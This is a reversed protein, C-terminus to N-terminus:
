KIGIICGADDIYATVVATSATNTVSNNVTNDCFASKYYTVVKQYANASDITETVLLDVTNADSKVVTGYVTEAGGYVYRSGNFRKIGYSGVTQLSVSVDGTLLKETKGSKLSKITINTGDNDVVVFPEDGADANNVVAIVGTTDFYVTADTQAAVAKGDDRFFISKQMKNGDITLSSADIESITGSFTKPTTVRVENAYDCYSVIDGINVSVNSKISSADYTTIEDLYYDYFKIVGSSNAVVKGIRYEYAFFYDIAMDGDMDVVTIQMGPRNTIMEMTATDENSATNFIEDFNYAYNEPWKNYNLYKKTGNTLYLRNTSNGGVTYYSGYSMEYFSGKKGIFFMNKTEDTDLNFTQAVTVSPEMYYLPEDPSYSGSRDLDAYTLIVRYGIFNDYNGAMKVDAGNSLLVDNEIEHGMPNNKTGLIVASGITNLNYKLVGFPDVYPEPNKESTVNFSDPPYDFLINYVIQAAVDRTLFTDADLNSYDETYGQENTYRLVQAMSLAEFSGKPGYLYGTEEPIEFGLAKSFLAAYEGVTATQTYRFNTNDYKKLIGLNVFYSVAKILENDKSKNVDEFPTTAAVTDGSSAGEILGDGTIVKYALKVIDGRTLTDDPRFKGDVYGPLIGMNSCIAIPKLSETFDYTADSFPTILENASAPLALASVLMVACLLLSLIKKM